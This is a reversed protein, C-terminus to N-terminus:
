SMLVRQLSDVNPPKTMHMHFGAALSKRRDDETGYGTLAILKVSTLEPMDRIIRAVDYGNLDGPLGIDCLIADPRQEQALAIGTRGDAATLVELGMIEQLFLRLVALIDPQDEIVLVRKHEAHSGEARRSQEEHWGDKDLLPLKIDFRTGQREGQSFAQIVGGHEDIIFKVLALGLGLGGKSRDLGQVGQAFGEFIHPLFEAPIGAGTDRITFLGRNTEPDVGLEMTITGGPPTYKLSNHLINGFAQSLRTEDGEIWLPTEM